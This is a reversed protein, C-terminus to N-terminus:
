ARALGGPAIAGTSGAIGAGIVCVDATIARTPEAAPRTVADLRLETLEHPMDPVNLGNVVSLCSFAQALPYLGSKNSGSRPPESRANRSNFKLRRRDDK